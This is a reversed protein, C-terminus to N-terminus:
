EYRLARAPALRAANVAPLLAALLCIVVAFFDIVAIQGPNIVAPIDPLGYVSGEFVQIHFVNLIFDRIGDLNHLILLGVFTGGSAGVIGVVASHVLFISCVQLDTAGLAKMLGIERSKQVTVTILTSCLGFAAVVLTVGLIVAMVTREVALANFWDRNDDM